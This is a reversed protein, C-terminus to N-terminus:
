GDGFQEMFKQTLEAGYDQLMQQVEDYTYHEKVPEPRHTVIWCSDGREFEFGKSKLKGRAHAFAKDTAPHWHALERDKAVCDNEMCWEYYLAVVSGEYVEVEQAKTPEKEEKKASGRPYLKNRSQAIWHELEEGTMPPDLSAGVNNAALARAAKLNGNTQKNFEHMAASVRSSVEKYNQETQEM